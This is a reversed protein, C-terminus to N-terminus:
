IETNIDFNELYDCVRKVFMGGLAGDVVRHDYTHSLLMKHRIGILDGQPTEIVAPKKSIAGVAMVAVEPQNIIPTGAINGFSGINTITYTGGRVDEPKLKSNRARDALDNIAKALGSLNLQDANKIVPVILNGDPLATAMGINIAKKKIINVGDVSINIMPFDKIAKVIAQIFVPMFTLKEGEERLFRDKNKNRWLVITTVDAEVFSTVHPSIQKSTLMHNAILKRMRGMEIIEDSDSIPFTSVTSNASQSIIAGSSVGLGQKKNKVYLLIDEKTVRGNLGNGKINDLEAQSINE